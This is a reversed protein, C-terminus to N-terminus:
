HGIGTVFGLDANKKQFSKKLWGNRHEDARRLDGLPLIPKNEQAMQSYRELDEPTRAMKPYWLKRLQHRENESMSGIIEPCMHFLQHVCLAAAVSLNLSDAFGHLPLYVRKDAGALLEASAGTSESGFCIALKEPFEDSSCRSSSLCEAKQSLDTVWVKRNDAKLAALCEATTGFARVDVWRLAGRAYACHDSSGDMAPPAIVWIHQIGLAEATRIIATYNHSQNSREVVVILRSTRRRLITEAKRLTRDKRGSIDLLEHPVTFTTAGITGLKKASTKIKEVQSETLCYKAVTAGVTAATIAGAVFSRIDYTM